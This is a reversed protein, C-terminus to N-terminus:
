GVITQPGAPQRPSATAVALTLLLAGIVFLRVSLRAWAKVCGSVKGGDIFADVAYGDYCAASTASKGQPPPSIM